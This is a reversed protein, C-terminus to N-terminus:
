LNGDPHTRTQCHGRTDDSDACPLRNGDNPWSLRRHRGPGDALHTVVRRKPWNESGDGVRLIRAKRDLNQPEAFAVILERGVIQLPIACCREAIPRPVKALVAPEIFRPPCPAYVFGQVQELARAIDTKSVLGERLLLDGLRTLREQQLSVAFNLEAQSLHGDQVLVDGLRKKKSRIGSM